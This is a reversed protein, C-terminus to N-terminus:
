AEEEARVRLQHGHTAYLAPAKRIREELDAHRPAEDHLHDIVMAVTAVHHDLQQLRDTERPFQSHLEQRVAELAAKHDKASKTV